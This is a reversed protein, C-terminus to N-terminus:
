DERRAEPASVLQEAATLFGQRALLDDLVFQAGCEPCRLERLGILSYGCLPCRVDVHGTEARVVRTEAAFIVPLWILLLAGASACILAAIMLEEDIRATRDLLLALGVTGGVLGGSLAVRTAVRERFAASV